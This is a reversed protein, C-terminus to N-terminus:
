RSSPDPAPTAAGERWPVTALVRPGERLALVLELMTDPGRTWAPLEHAWGDAHAHDRVDELFCRAPSADHSRIVAAAAHWRMRAWQRKHCGRAHDTSTVHRHLQLAHGPATLRVRVWRASWCPV